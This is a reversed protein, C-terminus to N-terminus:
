KAKLEKYTKAGANRLEQIIRKKTQSFVELPNPVDPYDTHMNLAMDLATVKTEKSYNNIYAKDVVDILIKVLSEDGYRVASVLYSNKKQKIPVNLDLGNSLLLNFCENRKKIKELDEYNTSMFLVCQFGISCKYRDQANVNAGYKILVKVVQPQQFFLAHALANICNISDKYEIDIGKKCLLEALEHYGKAAA